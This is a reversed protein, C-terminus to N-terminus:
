RERAAQEAAEAMSAAASCGSCGSCGAAASCGACGSRAAAGRGRGDGCHDGCDCLGRRTMRRVALVALAAIVALIIVTPLNLALDQM